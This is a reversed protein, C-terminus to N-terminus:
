IYTDSDYGIYSEYRSDELELDIYNLSRTISIVRCDVQRETGKVYTFGPLRELSLTIKDGYDVALFAKRLRVKYVIKRYNELNVINEAVKYPGTTGIDATPSANAQSYTYPAAYSILSRSSEDLYYPYGLETYTTYTRFDSVEDSLSPNNNIDYSVVLTKFTRQYDHEYELTEFLLDKKRVIWTTAPAAANRVLKWKNENSKFLLLDYSRAIGNVVDFIKSRDGNPSTPDLFSVPSQNVPEYALLSEFSDLDIDSDTLNAVMRLIMYIAAAPHAVAPMNIHTGIDTSGIPYSIGDLKPGYVHAVVYSDPSAGANMTSIGVNSEASTTLIVRRYYGNTGNDLTYSSATTQYDRFPMLETATGSQNIFVRSCMPRSVTVSGLNISAGLAADLTLKVFTTRTLSKIQPYAYNGLSDVRIRDGVRFIYDGAPDLDIELKGPKLVGTSSVSTNTDNLVNGAIWNRNSSTSATTADWNTPFCKIGRVHGFIFPIKEESRSEDIDFGFSGSLNIQGYSEFDVLMKNQLNNQAVDFNVVEGNVSLDNCIFNVIKNTNEVSPNGSIRYVDISTQNNHIIHLVEDLIGNTNNVSFSGSYVPQVEKLRDKISSKVSVESALYPLYRVKRTTNDLPDLYWTIAKESIPVVCTIKFYTNSEPISKIHILNNDIDYSWENFSPTTYPFVETWKVYNYYALNTYRNDANAFYRSQYFDVPILGSPISKTATEALGTGSVSDFEDYRFVIDVKLPILTNEYVNDKAINELYSM